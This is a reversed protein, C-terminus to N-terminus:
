EIPVPVTALLDAIVRSVDLGRLQASADMLLRHALVPEAVAKVDDPIVFDRGALAAWAQSARQLVLAARPSAGLRLRSDARTAAVLDLVYDRAPRSVAVKLVQERVAEIDEPGAVPSLVPAAARHRFRELLAAEEERGPLGVGVRLAFRDLQAEPLPFTGEMEVPNQTAVVMFPSPLATTVGDVSVQHEQMAELLASQARPTARNIEDALVIHAFVPGPRFSFEQSRADYVHVGVIDAPVLDPTFQIRGFSCRLSAALARCITTKGTGPLDELLVHGDCLLAVLLLDLARTRGVVVEGISRKLARALAVVDM